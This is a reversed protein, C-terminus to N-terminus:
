PQQRLFAFGAALSEHLARETDTDTMRLRCLGRRNRICSIQHFSRILYGYSEALQWEPAKRINPTPDSPRQKTCTVDLTAHDGVQRRWTDHLSAKDQQPRLLQEAPGQPVGCVRARPSLWTVCIRQSFRRCSASLPAPPELRSHLKTTHNFRAPSNHPQFVATLFRPQWPLSACTTDEGAFPRCHGSDSHAHTWQSPGLRLTQCM